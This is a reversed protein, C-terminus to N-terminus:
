LGTKKEEAGTIVVAQQLGQILYLKILDSPESKELDYHKNLTDLMQKVTKCSRLEKECNSTLKRPMTVIPQPM